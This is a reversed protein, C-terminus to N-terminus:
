KIFIEEDYDAGLFYLGCGPVSYGAKNRNKSELINRFQELSTKGLGVDVITGVIARVMNRLFRNAKITFVWLHSHEEWHAEMLNCIYNTVQTNRKSFCEYDDYSFLMESAQQMARFNMPREQLWARNILFPDKKTCIYYEYSRSIASFRAHADGTVLKLEKVAIDQPLIRNLKYVLNMRKLEDLTKETNFHATYVRAHVGTDTRGCGTLGTDAKLLTQLAESLLQQITIANPQIQWGHYNTGDYSLYIFYRNTQNEPM